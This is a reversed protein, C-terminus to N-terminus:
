SLLFFLYATLPKAKQWYQILAEDVNYTMRGSTAEDLLLIKPNAVLVRAIAIRQKQGGSLQSGKDGVQFTHLRLDTEECFFIKFRMEVLVFVFRPKTDMQFSLSSIM